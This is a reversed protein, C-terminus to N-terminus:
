AEPRRGRPHLLAPPVPGDLFVLQLRPQGDPGITIGRVEARSRFEGAADEVVLVAGKDVPLSTRVRAAKEGIEEAETEEERPVGGPAWEPTLRLKLRVAGRTEPSPVDTPTDGARLFVGGPLSETAGPPQKGFFVLGACGDRENPHVHRVLAYVHYSGDTLDHQRFRRPLPLSLYLVQGIRLPRTLRVAVGGASVDRCTTMIEWLGGDPSRGQVRVPLQMPVRPQRRRESAGVTPM